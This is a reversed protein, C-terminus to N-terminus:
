RSEVITSHQHPPEYGKFVGGGITFLERYQVLYQYQYRTGYYLYKSVTHVPIIKTDSFFRFGKNRARTRWDRLGGHGEEQKPIKSSKFEENWEQFIGPFAALPLVRFM